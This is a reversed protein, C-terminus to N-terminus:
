QEPGLSTWFNMVKIIKINSTILFLCIQFTIFANWVSFYCGKYQFYGFPYPLIFLNVLDEKNRKSSFCSTKSNSIKKKEGASKRFLPSNPASFSKVSRQVDSVIWKNTAIFPFKEPRNKKQVLLLLHSNVHTNKIFIAM